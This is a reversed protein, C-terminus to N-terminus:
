MGLRKRVINSGPNLQLAVRYAAVAQEKKGNISLVEGLVFQAQFSRPELEVSRRAWHEADPLSHNNLALQALGTSGLLNSDDLSVARRFLREAQSPDGGKLAKHGASAFRRSVKALLAADDKQIGMSDILLLRAGASDGQANLADALLQKIEPDAARETLAWEAGAKAAAVDNQSFYFRVLDEVGRGEPDLHASLCFREEALQIEGRQLAKRALLWASKAQRQHRGRPVITKALLHECSKNPIRLSSGKTPAQSAESAAKQLKQASSKPVAAMPSAPKQDAAVAALRTGEASPSGSGSNKAGSGAPEPAVANASLEGDNGRNVWAVVLAVLVLAALGSAIPLRYYRLNQRLLALMVPNLSTVSLRFRSLKLKRAANVVPRGWAGPSIARRESLEQAHNQLLQPLRAIPAADVQSELEFIASGDSLELMEAIVDRLAAGSVSAGDRAAAVVAGDLLSLAYDHALSAVRLVRAGGTKSAAMLVRAMGLRAVGVELGQLLQELTEWETEWHLELCRTLTEIVVGNSSEDFVERWRLSVLRMWRMRPDAEFASLLRAARPVDHEDIIYGIADLQRVPAIKSEPQSLSLTEVKAGLQRLCTAVAQVRVDDDDVVVWRTARLTRGDPAMSVPPLSFRGDSRQASEAVFPSPPRSSVRRHSSPPAHPMMEAAEARPQLM